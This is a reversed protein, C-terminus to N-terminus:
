LHLVLYVWLYVQRDNKIAQQMSLELYLFSKLYYTM